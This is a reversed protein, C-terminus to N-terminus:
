CRAAPYVFVPRSSATIAPRAVQCPVSSTARLHEGLNGPGNPSARSTAAAIPNRALGAPPNM